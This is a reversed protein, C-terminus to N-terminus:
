FQKKAEEIEKSTTKEAKSNIALTKKCLDLIFMSTELNITYM